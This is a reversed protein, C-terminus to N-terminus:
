LHCAKNIQTTQLLRVVTQAGVFVKSTLQCNNPGQPTVLHPLLQLFSTTFWHRSDPVNEIGVSKRRIVRTRKSLCLFQNHLIILRGTKAFILLSLNHM